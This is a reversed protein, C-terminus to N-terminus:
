CPQKPTANPQLQLALEYVRNRPENLQEAVQNIATRRSIGSQLVIALHKNIEADTASAPPLPGLTIVFEGKSSATTDIAFREAMQALPARIVEEHMKTLERVVVCPREAANSTALEALTGAIRQPSEMLVVTRHEAAIQAIRKKRAEGKRPLWGEMVHPLTTFGSIALAALPASAGPVITVQHGAAAVAAVLLTGPDAVTPTGADSVLAVDVNRSLLELVEAIAENESAENIVLLRPVGSARDVGLHELLRGTRRTDECGIATVSRLVEAARATIDSLNGIPTAVLILAGGSGASM